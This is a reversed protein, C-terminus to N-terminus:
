FFLCWINDCNGSELEYKLRFGIEQFDDPDQVDNNALYGDTHVGVYLPELSKGLIFM